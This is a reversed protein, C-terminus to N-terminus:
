LMSSRPGTTTAGTRGPSRSTSSLARQASGAGARLAVSRGGVLRRRAGGELGRQPGAGRGPRPGGVQRGRRSGHGAGHRRTGTGADVLLARIRDGVDRRGFLRAAPVGDASGGLSTRQMAVATSRELEGRLRVAEAGPSAGLEGHLAQELRELQLLAGRPDGAAARARAVGLHAEEDTPEETLVDDWRGLLRLLDLHQRGASRRPEEAWQEYPDDPLLPGAYWRLAEDALGEDGTQLAQTAARAFERVDVEVDERGPFLTVLEHRLVVAGSDDLARRAYHAAKHLRPGAVDWSLGPWLADIVQERHMRRDRALALLQVLQAAQRRVWADAPVPVHDRVIGFGGLLRIQVSM